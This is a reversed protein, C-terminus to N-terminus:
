GEAREIDPQVRAWDEDSAQEWADLEEQLERPPPPFHARLADVVLQEASVGSKVALARVAEAIENPLKLEM